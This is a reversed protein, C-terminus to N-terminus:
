PPFPGHYETDRLPRTWLEQGSALDVARLHRPRAEFTGDDRRVVFPRVEYILERDGLFFPAYSTHTIVSGAPRGDALSYIKWRYTERSPDSAIRESTMAYRGDASRYQLGAVTPLREAAALDPRDPDFARVSPTAATALLTGQVPDFVATGSIESGAAEAIAPAGRVTRERYRWVLDLDAGSAIPVVRFSRGLQDDVMAHAGSPLVVNASGILGGGAAADLSAIEFGPRDGTALSLLRDGVLALPVEAETSHWSVNGLTLGVAEVGGEAEMLYLTSRDPDVVVGPVMSFASGGWDGAATLPSSVVVLVALVVLGLRAILPSSM